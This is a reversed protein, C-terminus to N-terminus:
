VWLDEYSFDLIQRSCELMRHPAVRYSSISRDAEWLAARMQARREMLVARRMKTQQTLAAAEAARARATLALRWASSCLVGARQQSVHIDFRKRAHIESAAPNSSWGCSCKSVRESRSSLIETLRHQAEVTSERGFAM